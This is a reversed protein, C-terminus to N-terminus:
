LVPKSQGGNVVQFCQESREYLDAPDRSLYVPSCYVSQGANVPPMQTEDVADAEHDHIGFADSLNETEVTVKAVFSISEDRRRFASRLM